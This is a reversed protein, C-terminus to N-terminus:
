KLDGYKSGFVTGFFGNVASRESDDSLKRFFTMGIGKSPDQYRLTYRSAKKLTRPSFSLSVEGQNYAKRVMESFMVIKEAMGHTLDSEWSQILSIEQERALYSFEVAVGFRDLTSSDQINTAAFKDIGDGLGKSNDCLMIKVKEHPSVVNDEPKDYLRLKGEDEFLWQLAMAVPAVMKTWEDINIFYGAKLAKPFDGDKWVTSGDEVLIKGLFSDPEIAGNMNFRLYPQKIVAAYNKSWATKGTGPMGTALPKEGDELAMALEVTVNWPWIYDLDAEPIDIRIAKPWDSKKNVTIYPDLADKPVIVNNYGAKKLAASLLIKGETDILTAKDFDPVPPKAPEKPVDKQVTSKAQRSMAAKMAESTTTSM